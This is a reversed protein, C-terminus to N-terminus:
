EVHHEGSSGQDEPKAINTRMKTDAEINQLRYYDMAGLKGTRLAEAFALPVQAEAEVVKAQMEEVKAKMEQELAVAAARRIEAQAQAMNKNAVAQHEQLKAGINDGVDVDAIDISIIEFATGTDLGRNLVNKSISDPNELVWKYTDSSGITTVIGEGVRAIITEEQASGVYHELNSRVTVRARAKVQIGDKAVGDITAKGSEPNPCDIVKPNISTRVAELVSKNTGKTALDIACAKNWELEIGAKQANIIAQVTQIIDGGAMFHTELENVSLDIGAKVAMIRADVILSYPLKRLYRMYILNSMSVPAGSSMAKLWVSLFSLVLIVVVLLIIGLIIYAIYM